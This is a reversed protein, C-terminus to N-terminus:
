TLQSNGGAMQKKQFLLFFLCVFVGFQIELVPEIMLQLFIVLWVIFFFFGERNRRIWALPMFVWLAFICAAPVGCGLAVTLFQNHPLLRAYEPLEPYHQEYYRLMEQKMDGTGYGKAPAEKILEVAIKYSILRSIDGYNGSKDKAKYMYYTYDLHNARQRFTPITKIAAVVIVPIAIIVLLGALKRRAIALYIGWGALFMYLSVLGSKAALIHMFVVLFIALAAVTAKVGRSQLSPWIYICWILYLAMALSGRIYDNKPLTPLLHAIRYQTVYYETDTILFSLSYCASASLLIGMGITIIQLQRISFRPLFSFALPLLLIPLKVEAMTSWVKKDDSWFWTLAYIAVWAVGVLWWKNRLWERPHVNWLANVGIAFTFFSLM